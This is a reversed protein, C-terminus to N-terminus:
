SAQMTSSYKFIKPRMKENWYYYFPREGQMTCVALATNEEMEM